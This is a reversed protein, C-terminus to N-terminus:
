NITYTNKGNAKARYMAQDARSLLSSGSAGTEAIAFGLSATVTVAASDLNYPSSLAVLFRRAVAQVDQVGAVTGLLLAFEDGGFRAAVDGPRLTARIRQGAITLLQDGASHGHRDNVEKFGDLDAFGVAFQRQAPVRAAAEGLETLFRTRNALGTLSDHTALEELRTLRARAESVDEVLGVVHLPAGSEDRVLAVSLSVPVSHGRAHIYRKEARYHSIEGAILQEVLSVSDDLDDPHTVDRFTRGLLDAPRYGVIRCMEDNVWLWRGDLSGLAVGIPICGLTQRWPQDAPAAGSGLISEATADRSVAVTGVFAGADDWIGSVRTEGVGLSPDRHTYVVDGSGRTGSRLQDLVEVFSRQGELPPIIDGVTRGALAVRLHGFMREAGPNADVVRGTGDTILVADTGGASHEGCATRRPHGAGEYSIAALSEGNV